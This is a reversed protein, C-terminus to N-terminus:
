DNGQDVEQIGSPELPPYIDGEHSLTFTARGRAAPNPATSNPTSTAQPRSPCDSVFHGKIGCYRCAGEKDRREKEVQSLRGDEGLCGSNPNATSSPVGPKPTAVPTAKTKSATSSTTSSSQCTTESPLENKYEWYNEDLVLSLAKLADLTKPRARDLTAMSNKIRPALGRYFAEAKPRDSWDPLQYCIRDFDTTYRTVRHTDKMQLKRLEEEARHQRDPEGFLSELKQVFLTLDYCFPPLERQEAGEAVFISSFWNLAPSELYSGIFLIKASDNPYRRPQSLFNIRCQALFDPLKSRDRGNFHDPARPKFSHQENDEPPRSSARIAQTLVDGFQGFLAALINQLNNEGLGADPAGGPQQPESPAPSPIDRPPERPSPPDAHGESPDEPVDAVVAPPLKRPM